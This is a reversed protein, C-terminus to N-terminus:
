FVNLFFNKILWINNNCCYNEFKYKNMLSDFTLDFFEILTLVLLSFKDLLEKGVHEDMFPNINKAECISIWCNMKNLLTFLFDCAMFFLNYRSNMNLEDFNIKNSIGIKIKTEINNRIIKFNDEVDSVIKQFNDVNVFSLVKLKFIDQNFLTNVDFLKVDKPPKKYKTILGGIDGDSDVLFVCFRLFLFILENKNKPTQLVCILYEVMELIYDYNEKKYSFMNSLIEFDVCDVDKLDYMNFDHTKLLTSIKIKFKDVVNLTDVLEYTTVITSQFNLYFTFAQNNNMFYYLFDQDRTCVLSVNEVNAKNWDDVIELITQDGDIKAEVYCIDLNEDLKECKQYESYNFYTSFNNPKRFISQCIKSYYRKNLNDSVIVIKANKFINKMKNIWANLDSGVTLLILTSDFIICVNKDVHKQYFNEISYEIKKFYNQAFKDIGM